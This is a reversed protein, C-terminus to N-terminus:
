LEYAQCDITGDPWAHFILPNMQKREVRKVQMNKDQVDESHIGWQNMYVYGSTFGQTYRGLRGDNDSSVNPNYNKSLEQHRPEFLLTNKDDYKVDGENPAIPIIYVTGDKLCTVVYCSRTDNVKQSEITGISCPPHPLKIKNWNSSLGWSLKTNSRKKNKPDNYSYHLSAITGDSTATAFGQEIGNYM